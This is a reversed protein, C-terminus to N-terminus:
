VDGKYGLLEYMVKQEKVHENHKKANSTFIFCLGMVTAALLCTLTLRVVITIIEKM